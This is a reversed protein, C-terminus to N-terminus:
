VCCHLFHTQSYQTQHRCTANHHATYRWAAARHLSPMATSTCYMGLNDWQKVPIRLTIYNENFQQILQQKTADTKKM